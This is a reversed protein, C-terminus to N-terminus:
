GCARVEACRHSHWHSLRPGSKTFSVSTLAPNVFVSTTHLSFMENTRLFAAFGLLVCLAFSYDERTVAAGILAADVLPPMPPARAPLEWKALAKYLRWTYTRLFHQM